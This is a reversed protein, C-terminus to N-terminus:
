GLFRPVIEEEMIQQGEAAIKWARANPRCSVVEALETGSYRLAVGDDAAIGAPLQNTTLLREYTPRRNVEGDYHPCNSGPLFGLCNDIPQLDTGFSDTVGADFWCISGASVGSLVIGQEWAERLITDVGHVRWTALMNATNGGGIYIIDQSLLFSRLDNVTRRFLSLHSPQCRGDNLAGYYRVLYESSDGTATPLFCIKPVTAASLSLLYDDLLRNEPDAGLGAGGIAVITKDPM